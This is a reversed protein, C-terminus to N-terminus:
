VEEVVITPTWYYGPNNELNIPFSVKTAHHLLDGVKSKIEARLSMQSLYFGEERKPWNFTMEVKVWPSTRHAEIDVTTQALVQMAADQRNCDALTFTLVSDTFPVSGGIYVQAHIQGAPKRLILYTQKDQFM